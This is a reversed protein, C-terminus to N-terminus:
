YATRQPHRRRCCIGAVRSKGWVKRRLRLTWKGPGGGSPIWRFDPACRQVHGRPLPRETQGVGNDEGRGDVDWGPRQDQFSSTAERFSAQPEHATYSLEKNTSSTRMPESKRQSEIAYNAKDLQVPFPYVPVKSKPMGSLTHRSRLSPLHPDRTRPTELTPESSGQWASFYSQSDWIITLNGLNLQNMWPKWHKGLIGILEGLDPVSILTRQQCRVQPM